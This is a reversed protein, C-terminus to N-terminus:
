LSAQTHTHTILHMAVVAVVLIIIIHETVICQRKRKDAIGLKERTRLGWNPLLSTNSCPCVGVSVVQFSMFLSSVVSHLVLIRVTACGVDHGLVRADAM